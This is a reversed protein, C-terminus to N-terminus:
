RRSGPRRPPRADPGPSPAATSRRPPAPSAPSARPAARHPRGLAVRERRRGLLTARGIPAWATSAATWCARPRAASPAPRWPSANSCRRRSCSRPSGAKVVEHAAEADGVEGLGAGVAVLAPSDFAITASIAVSASASGTAAAARRRTAGARAPERRRRPATRRRSTRSAGAHGNRRARVCSACPMHSRRHRRVSASDRAGSRAAASVGELRQTRKRPRVARAVLQACRPLRAPSPRRVRAVLERRLLELDRVHGRSPRVLRSIPWRSKREWRVTLECRYRM